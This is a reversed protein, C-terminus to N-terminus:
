EPPPPELEVPEDFRVMKELRGSGPSERGGDSDTTSPSFSARWSFPPLTPLNVILYTLRSSAVADAPLHSGPLVDALARLAACSLPAIAYRPSNLEPAVAMESGIRFSALM